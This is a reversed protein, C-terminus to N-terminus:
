FEKVKDIEDQMLLLKETELDLSKKFLQPAREMFEKHNNTEGPVNSFKDRLEQM